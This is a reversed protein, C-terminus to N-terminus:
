VSSIFEITGESSGSLAGNLLGRAFDFSYTPNEFGLNLTSINRFPRNIPPKLKVAHEFDKLALDIRNLEFYSLAREEYASKSSPNRSIAENLFILADDYLFFNNHASGESILREVENASYLQSSLLFCFIFLLRVKQVGRASFPNKIRFRYLIVFNNALIQYFEQTKRPFSRITPLL